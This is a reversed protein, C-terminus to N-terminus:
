ELLPWSIESATARGADDRKEFLGLKVAKFTVGYAAHNMYVGSIKFLVRYTGNPVDFPSERGSSELLDKIVDKPVHVKIKRGNDGARVPASWARVPARKKTATVASVHESAWQKLGDEWGDTDVDAPLHIYAMLKLSEDGEEYQKRLEAQPPGPYKDGQVVFGPREPSLMYQTVAGDYVAFNPSLQRCSGAPISHIDSFSSM